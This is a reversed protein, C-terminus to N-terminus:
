EFRLSDSPDSNITHWLQRYMTFVAVFFVAVFVLFYNTFSLSVHYAFRNLWYYSLLFSIPLAFIGAITILRFIEKSLLTVLEKTGAGLVKRIGIEKTRYVTTLALLSYLGMCAIFIAFFSFVIAVQGTSEEERYFEGLSENMSFQSFPSNPRVTGWLKRVREIIKDNIPLAFRVTVYKAQISKSRFMILPQIKTHLSEFNFNGVVGKIILCNTSTDPNVIYITSGIPNKLSLYRVAEENVVIDVTDKTPYHAMTFSGQILKMGYTRFFLSDTGMVYMMFNNTRDNGNQFSQMGLAKGPVSYSYAVNEVGKLEMLKKRFEKENNELGSVNQIVLLHEKQFGVGKQQVFRLQRYITSTSYIIVLSFVFQLIVLIGRLGKGGANFQRQQRLITAPSFRIIYFAPYIGAIIGTFLTVGFIIPSLKFLLIQINLNPNQQVITTNPYILEVLVLAFFLSIFSITISEALLQQSLERRQSGLIKRIGIERVRGALRATSLNAYNIGAILIILISIGAIILLTQINVNQSYEYKLHSFLHIDSVKQLRLVFYENLSNMKEFTIGMTKEMEEGAENYFGKVIKEEIATLNLSASVARKNMDAEENFRFYTYLYHTTWSQNPLVLSSLSVLSKYNIHSNTPCDEIVGTVTWKKKNEEQTGGKSDTSAALKKDDEVTLTKGIAGNPFLQDAVSHSLVISRPKNLCTKPDGIILKFGFIDFFTSDVYLLTRNDLIASVPSIIPIDRDNRFIRCSQEIEPVYHKLGFAFMPSTVAATSELGGMKSDIYLRYLRDSSPHFDDYESQEWIYLLVMIACAMGVALGFVNIVFYEKNRLLNRIALKLYNEM